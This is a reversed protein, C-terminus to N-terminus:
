KNECLNWQLYALRCAVYSTHTMDVTFCLCILLFICINLYIILNTCVDLAAARTRHVTERRIVHGALSNRCFLNHFPRLERCRSSVSQSPSSIVSYNMTNQSYLYVHKLIKLFTKPLQQFKCFSFMINPRGALRTM